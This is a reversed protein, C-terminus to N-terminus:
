GMQGLPGLRNLQALGGSRFFRSAAVKGGPTLDSFDVYGQRDMMNLLPIDVAGVLAAMTAPVMRGQTNFMNTLDPPGAGSRTSGTLSGLSGLAGLGSFYFYCPMNFDCHRGLTFLSNNFRM